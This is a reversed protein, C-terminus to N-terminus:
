GVIFLIQIIILFNKVLSFLTTFYFLLNIQSLFKKKLIVYKDQELNTDQMELIEDLETDVKTDHADLLEDMSNEEENPSVSYDQDFIDNTSAQGAEAGNKHALTNIAECAEVVQVFESNISSSNGEFRNGSVTGRRQHM